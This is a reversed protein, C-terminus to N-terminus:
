GCDAKVAASFRCGVRRRPSPRRSRPSILIGHDFESLIRESTEILNDGCHSGRYFGLRAPYAHATEFPINGSKGAHGGRLGWLLM